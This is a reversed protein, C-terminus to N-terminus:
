NPFHFSKAEIRIMDGSQMQIEVLQLGNALALPGIIENISTSSGWDDKKPILINTLGSAILNKEGVGAQLKVTAIADKWEIFLSILTWDHM